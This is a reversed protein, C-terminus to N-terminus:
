IYVLILFIAITAGLSAGSSIGIIYPDALSNQVIAQMIVGSVALGAGVIIVLLVRPLRLLWIIDNTM